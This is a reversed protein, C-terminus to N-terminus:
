LIKQVLNKTHDLVPGLMRRLRIYDSGALVALLRAPHILDFHQISVLWPYRPFRFAFAALVLNLTAPSSKLGANQNNIKSGSSLNNQTRDFFRHLNHDNSCHNHHTQPKDQIKPQHIQIQEEKPKKPSTPQPEM